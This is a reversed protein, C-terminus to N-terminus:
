NLSEAAIGKFEPSNVYSQFGGYFESVRPGNRFIGVGNRFLGLAHDTGEADGVFHILKTAEQNLSSNLLDLLDDDMGSTGIVLVKGCKAIFERAFSQHTAPCVVDTLGKGALPATLVPYVYSDFGVGWIDKSVKTDRTVSGHKIVRVDLFPKQIDLREVAKDWTLDHGPVPRFWDISGHLKVVKAPRHRYIYNDMNVFSYESDFSELAKELLDDYNMVIFMAEHPHEALLETVLRVYGSPVRTYSGSCLWLLDRLYPPIHKFRQKLQESPHDAYHRLADELGTGNALDAILNQALFTAGSYRSLVDWFKSNTADFLKNALPPKLDPNNIPSADSRVDFSAGAGLIVCVKQSEEM